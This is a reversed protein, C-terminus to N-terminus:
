QIGKIQYQSGKKWKSKSAGSIHVRGLYTKSLDSNRDFRTTSLIESRVGKYMDLYEEKLKEPTNGFDLELMQREEEKNFKKKYRKQDVAKIDLNHYNKPYRDYQIYNVVNGLISWQEM